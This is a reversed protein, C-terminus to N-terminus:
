ISTAQGGTTIRRLMTMIRKVIKVRIDTESYYKYPEFAAYPPMWANSPWALAETASMKSQVQPPTFNDLQYEPM